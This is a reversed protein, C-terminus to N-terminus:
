KSFYAKIAEKLDAISDFSKYVVPNSPDSTNGEMTALSPKKDEYKIGVFKYALGAPVTFQFKKDKPFGNVLSRSSNLAMFSTTTSNAPTNVMYEKPNQNMFRDCNVWGLKSVSVIYNLNNDFIKQAIEENMQAHLEDGRAKVREEIKKKSMGGIGLCGKKRNKMAEALLQDHLQNHFDEDANWVKDKKSQNWNMADIESNRQGMFVKMDEKFTDTPFVLFMSNPTKLRLNKKGCKANIYAMGGSELLKGNSLTTLNDFIMDAKTLADKFEIAICEEKCVKEDGFAHALIVLKTGRESFIVTDRNGSVCFRSVPNALLVILERVDGKPEPPKPIEWKAAIDVRRNKQKGTESENDALPKNEGNYGIKIKNSDIGNEIFYRRVERSRNESLRVNFISDGVADTNGSVSFQLKAKIKLSDAFAKLYIKSSDSLDFKASEFYVAAQVKGTTQGFTNSVATLLCISFLTKVLKM